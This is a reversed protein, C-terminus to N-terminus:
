RRAGAAWATQQMASDPALRPVIGLIPAARMVVNAVVPAAVWGGGAFHLTDETGTPEDLVALVLFRPNDIPFVGVFSSILSTGQYGDATLKQATGTKGGVRYGPVDANSGTGAEVAHRFLRRMKVSTAESFVRTGGLGSSGSQKVLTAPNLVGGNVIAAVGSALQLPSVAIGYGYSVTLTNIERWRQPTLPSGVELLEVTAPTLLGAANLYARQVDSGIDIALKATGINSSHAFIEPVTLYRNQPHDDRIVHRAFRIPTSADYGDSFGVVGREFAMAFTFTKLVSGLEYVGQTVRNFSCTCDAAPPSNPDFDPLSAAALVEGTRVDLILGAAGVADHKAAARGLEDTLAHQLRIDISLALPGEEASPAALRNDFFREIGALGTGDIDVFGLIHAALRSQPYFREEEVKFGLGPLGLANVQWQESPTLKRKLWEFRSKSRLKRAVEAPSLGPLVRALKAATEHPDLVLTPDVFLSAPRLSTALLVGHRDTIEARTSAAAVHRTGAPERVAGFLGLNVTQVALLSFVGAMLIVIVTLRLRAQEMARQRAGEIILREKVTM